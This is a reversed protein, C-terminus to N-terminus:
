LECHHIDHLVATYWREFRMIHVVKRHGETKARRVEAELLIFTVTSAGNCTGYRLLGRTIVQFIGGEHTSVKNATLPNRFRDFGTM